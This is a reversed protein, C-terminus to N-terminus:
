QTCDEFSLAKSSDLETEQKEQVIVLGDLGGAEGGGLKYAESFTHFKDTIEKESKCSEALKRFAKTVSMPLGSERLIKDLHNASEFKKVSERLRANEATLKTVAEAEAHIAGPKGPSLNKTGPTLHSALDAAEKKEEAEKAAKEEAEKAEKKAAAHKAMKVTYCAAKEAEEGEMGMEHAMKHAEHVAAEDEQSADDGMHKKMMKQILDKDQQEDDSAAPKDGDAGDAKPTEDDKKDAPPASGEEGEKKEEAETKKEEAEVIKKSMLTKEQELMKIVRGGAGAETVLDCSVASEIQKVVRVVTAGQARAKEIKPVVAAPVRTSKLFEDFPMESADGNANISLGILDGEHKESYKVSERILTRSHDFSSGDLVVLDGSLQGRDQDVTFQVNEFYGGVDRVSREPRTAEEFESPHDVYLKKGEFIRDAAAKMLAERTYYACDKLNGLGEKILVVSFRRGDTAPAKAASSEKLRLGPRVTSRSSEKKARVLQPVSSVSIAEKSGKKPYLYKTLAEMNDVHSAKGGKVTEPM